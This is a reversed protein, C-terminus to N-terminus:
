CTRIMDDSFDFQWKMSMGADVLGFITFTAPLTYFGAGGPCDCGYPVGKRDLREERESTGVSRNKEIVNM